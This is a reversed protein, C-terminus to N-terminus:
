LNHANKLAQFVRKTKLKRELLSEIYEHTNFDSAKGYSENWFGLDKLLAEEFDTISRSLDSQQQLSMLSSVLLKYIAENEQQEPCLGDILECMHYAVSLRPLNNKIGIFDDHLRVETLTPTGGHTRYLNLECHNFLELSPSRKSATKRIGKAKVTMKGFEETFVTLIRDAEGTNRRKIVIGRTKSYRSM